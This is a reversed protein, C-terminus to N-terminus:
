SGTRQAWGRTPMEGPSWGMPITVYGSRTRVGGGERPAQASCVRSRVRRVLCDAHTLWVCIELPGECSFRRPGSLSVYLDNSARVRGISGAIGGRADLCRRRPAVRSRLNVAARIDARGCNTVRSDNSWGLGTKPRPTSLSNLIRRDCTDYSASALMPLGVRTTARRRVCHSPVSAVGPPIEAVVVPQAAKFIM